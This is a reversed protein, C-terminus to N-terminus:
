TREMKHKKVFAEISGYTEKVKTMVKRPMESGREPWEHYNFMQELSGYVHDAIEHVAKRDWGPARLNGNEMELNRWEKVLKLLESKRTTPIRVCVKEISM